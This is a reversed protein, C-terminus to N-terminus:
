VAKVQFLVQVLSLIKLFYQPIVYSIDDWTYGKPLPIPRNKADATKSLHYSHGSMVFENHETPHCKFCADSGVYEVANANNACCFVMAALLAKSFNKSTKTLPKKTM